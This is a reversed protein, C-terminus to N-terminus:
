DTKQKIIILYCFILCTIFLILSFGFKLREKPTKNREFVLIADFIGYFDESIKKLFLHGRFLNICVGLASAKSIIATFTTAVPLSLLTSTILICSVSYSIRTFINDSTKYEFSLGFPLLIYQFLNMTKLEFLLLYLM